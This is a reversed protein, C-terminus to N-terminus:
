SKFSKLFQGPTQNFQAKFARTFHAQDNFGLSMAVSAINADARSLESKAHELRQSMLYQYPTVGMLKKFERLFYFKSCHLLEALDEVAINEGLHAEIYQDIKEIQEHSFKSRKSSADLLDHYNSYNQIYHTSLLSLLNQLYNKGNRGKNQVEILFLEMIGKITEDMVNYNNLFQLENQNVPLPCSDFFPEPEVALILFYCPESIDHTFPTQPPNIWINGPTSKLLQTGSATEVQWSLDQELALAFYFYPTHVHNPYFHPSQGKEFVVGPWDLDHNSFEIDLVAGCDSLTNDSHNYFRLNSQM